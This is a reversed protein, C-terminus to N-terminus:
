AAMRWIWQNELLAEHSEGSTASAAEVLRGTQWTTLATPQPSCCRVGVAASSSRAGDPAAKPCRRQRRNNSILPKCFNIGFKEGRCFPPMNLMIKKMVADEGINDRDLTSVALSPVLV